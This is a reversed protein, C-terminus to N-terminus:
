PTTGIFPQKPLAAKGKSRAQTRLRIMEAFTELRTAFGEEATQEDLNFHFYPVGQKALYPELVQRVSTEPL